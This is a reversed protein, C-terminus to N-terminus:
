WSLTRPLAYVYTTCTDAGSYGRVKIRLESTLMAAPTHLWKVAQQSLHRVVGCGATASTQGLLHWPCQVHYLISSILNKLMYAM